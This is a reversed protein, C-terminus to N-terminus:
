KPDSSDLSYGLHQPLPDAVDNASLNKPVPLAIVRRRWEGHVM